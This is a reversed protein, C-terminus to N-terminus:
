KSIRQRNRKLKDKFFNIIIVFSFYFILNIINVENNVILHCLNGIEGLFEM